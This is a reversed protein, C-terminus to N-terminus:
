VVVTVADPVCRLTISRVSGISVGDVWCPTSSEFDVTVPETRVRRVSIDPHPLHTGTAVRKRAAILDRIGLRADILDLRGDNPHGAPVVNRDGVWQSNMVALVRGTWSRRRVIVHAAFVTHEGGHAVVGLDMPLHLADAQTGAQSPGGITTLLDGGTLRVVKPDGAGTPGTGGRASASIDLERLDAALALQADTNAEAASPSSARWGWDEGRKIVM